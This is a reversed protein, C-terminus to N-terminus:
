SDLNAKSAKEELVSIQNLYKSIEKEKGKAMAIFLSEKIESIRYGVLGDELDPFVELYDDSYDEHVGAERIMRQLSVIQHEAEQLAQHYYWLANGVEEETADRGEKFPQLTQEKMNMRMFLREELPFSDYSAIRNFKPKSM